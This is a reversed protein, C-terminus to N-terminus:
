ALLIIVRVAGALRWDDFGYLNNFIRDKDQRM